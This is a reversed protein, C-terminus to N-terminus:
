PSGGDRCLGCYECEGCFSSPRPKFDSTKIQSIIQEARVKATAVDAPAVPVDDITAGDLYAVSAKSIDWGVQRLGHSYLRLQFEADDKSVVIDSTKYDRVEFSQDAKLIVDVKGAITANQVPFELRTEVEQINRMDEERAVAFKTLTVKATSRVDSLIDKSAFQLHFGDDVATAVASAPHYGQKIFEAAHRMCFHLAGGYGLLPSMKQAYGWMQNMRYHHPCLAYNIIESPTFSLIEEEEVIEHTEYELEFEHSEREEVPAGELHDFFDSGSVNRTMRTFRSMVLRDRARTIAVYFLRKEEEPGGEYRGVDFMERPLMWDRQRGAMSSPFRKKVLAPMFVIPWELGKSQHVTMLQVADVGRIDEANVEEYSRTAYTNIFWCLGKLESAWNRRHGGIRMSIEFDNLMSSFRGLNAMLAAHLPNSVNMNRYGLILLLQEYAEKLGPVEKNLIRERWDLLQDMVDESLGYDIVGQWFELGTELLEDGEIRDNWSFADKIWFGEESLWSIIRGVAQAEARKFLGVKGGVMFPISRERFARLFPEASTNVSRLLIGFDCFRCKGDKVLRNIQNAAWIAEDEPTGFVTHIVEGDEERTSDMQEYKVDAFSDAFINSTKVVKKVSRRNEKIEVEAAGPFRTSFEQFFRENSGRWQYISQRPDGVVFVHANAGILEILRYQNFNIDQFEDVILHKIHSLKNSEKELRIVAEYVMRNFTLRKHDDLLKEYATLMMYFAPAKKELAGRDLMENYAVSISNIFSECTRAYSGQINKFGLQWGCRSIFAMEQNEDFVNYNGFGFYDELIQLCYGHITGIYIEGLRKTLDEVGLSTMRQYLRSKMSQAAKETFTFAVISSPEAKECILLHAIKRTLTETKGAGAGAIIRVFPRPDLIAKRQDPSLPKPENLIADLLNGSSM